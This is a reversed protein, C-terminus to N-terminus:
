NSRYCGGLYEKGSEYTRNGIAFSKKIFGRSFLILIAGSLLVFATISPSIWFAILVQIGTFVLSSIFQLFSHTGASATAIQSTLINLLDSKRHDIFFKWNAHLLLDYTENRLHRFFGHQITTNRITIQRFLIGQTIVLLVYISLIIILGLANPLQQFLAIIGALPTDKGDLSILGSMNIMPILMVLGIGDLLSIMLMGILNIYLTKGAYAQLKRVFYLIQNM